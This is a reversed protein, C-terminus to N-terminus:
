VKVEVWYAGIHQFVVAQVKEKIEEETADDEVEFSDEQRYSSCRSDIIVKIKRM